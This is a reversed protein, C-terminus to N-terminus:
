GRKREEMRKDFATLTDYALSFSEFKSTKGTRIQILAERIALLEALPISQKIIYETSHPREELQEQEIATACERAMEDALESPSKM